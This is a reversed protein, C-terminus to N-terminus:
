IFFVWSKSVIVPRGRWAYLALSGVLVSWPQIWLFQLIKRLSAGKMAKMQIKALLIKAWLQRVVLVQLLRQVQAGEGSQVHAKPLHLHQPSLLRLLLLFIASSPFWKVELLEGFAALRGHFGNMERAREYTYCHIAVNSTKYNSGVQFDVKWIGAWLFSGSSLLSGQFQVALRTVAISVIASGWSLPLLVLAWLYRWPSLVHSPQFNNIIKVSNSVSCESVPLLSLFYRCKHWTRQLFSYLAWHFHSFHPFSMPSFSVKGSEPVNRPRSGRGWSIYLIYM